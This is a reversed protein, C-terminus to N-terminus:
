ISYRKFVETVSKGAEKIDLILGKVEKIEQISDPSVGLDKAADTASKVYSAAAKTLGAGQKITTKAFGQIKKLRAIIVDMKNLEEMYDDQNDELMGTYMKLGTIAGKLDSLANLEVKESSLEQKTENKISHIKALRQNVNKQTNM